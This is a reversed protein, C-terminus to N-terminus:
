GVMLYDRGRTYGLAHLTGAIDTRAGHNSVYSLVFSRNDQLWDPSVVPVGDLRNGIKRPDIDIWARPCFGKCLLRACRQRTRRGAGWIVLERARTLLREDSALYVARLEDFAERRYRPSSRSLRQPQDRWRLLMDPLKEMRLGRQFLRLWLEYDEPFDGHRYGGVAHLVDRRIMVAPHAFPAEVFIDERIDASTLCANQWELYEMYGGSVQPFKEVVCGLVAIDPHRQMLRFQLELRQPQMIDDADMRAVLSGRAARWGANLASVIGRGPNLIRCLRADDVAALMDHTSDTSHDDIVLLEFDALTQARISALCDELTAAANRVPLVVSVTPNLM